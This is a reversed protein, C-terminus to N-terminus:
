DGKNNGNTETETKNTETQEIEKKVKEFKESARKRSDILNGLTYTLGGMEVTENRWDEIDKLNKIAEYVHWVLMGVSMVVTGLYVMLTAHPFPHGTGILYFKRHEMPAEVEVEAWVCIVRRQEGVYLIKAGEPMLIIQEDTDELPYKWIQKM